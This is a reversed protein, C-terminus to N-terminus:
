KIRFLGNNSFINKFNKQLNVDLDELTIKKGLKHFSTVGGDKVGCPVINKFHNLNPNVNISLGHFTIWGSIRIGM